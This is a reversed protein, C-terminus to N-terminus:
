QRFHLHGVGGAEGRGVRSGIGRLGSADQSRSIRVVGVTAKVLHASAPACLGDHRGSFYRTNILESDLDTVDVFGLHELLAIVQSPEYFARWLQRGDGLVPKMVELYQREESELQDIPVLYELVIESGSAVSAIYRLIHTAAARTLYQTLGLCSFFALEQALYGAADLAEKLTHREFDVPVFRLNEPPSMDLHALRARKSDQTSPHDVEFVRVCAALEPRRWAFSDLGAGLIVYQRVGHRIADALAEEAYRSRVSM